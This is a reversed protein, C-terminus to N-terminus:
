FRHFESFCAAMLRQYEPLGKKQVSNEIAESVNNTTVRLWSEWHFNLESYMLNGGFPPDTFIYDLSESPLALSAASGTSLFSRTSASLGRVAATIREGSQDLM